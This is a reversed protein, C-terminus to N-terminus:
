LEEILNRLYDLGSEFLAPGPQLFIEPPVEFVRKESVAQVKDWGPRNMISPIDVPKGCWCGLIIDPNEKLIHGEEPFRDRALIGDRLHSNIDQLGCLEVLESFYRIGSIRPEDWEELYVKLKKNRKAAWEQTEKIKTMWRKLIIEFKESAGVLAAIMACYNLTEQLTRHNSIFVNQGLEIFNKAIDKQIDSYGIILDPLLDLIKKQNAHTFVSVVPKDKKVEPPRLAYQSVGVIRSEEGLLYLLEVSEETLCIIREPLNPSKM